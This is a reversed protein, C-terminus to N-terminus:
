RVEMSQPRLRQERGLRALFAAAPDDGGVPGSEERLAPYAVAGPVDFRISESAPTDAREAPAPSEARLPPEGLRLPEKKPSLPSLRPPPPSPPIDGEAMVTTPGREKALFKQYVVRNRRLGEEISLPAPQQNNKV